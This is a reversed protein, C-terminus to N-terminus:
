VKLAAHVPAYHDPGVPVFRELSAAQLEARMAPDDNAALLAARLRHKVDSGLHAAAVLPQVPWPGLRQIVRLDAVAGEHRSRSIRVVSDVVAADLQGAVVLDLSRHHGGTFTLDAFRDPDAGFNRVAIRLAHHGSLSVPDNCGVRKAALDAFTQIPSDALVVIDGFYNPGGGAEPDDPAWAVGVLEISPGPARTALDVFSTSCIWGLDARGDRFPDEGAAPGSREQDLHLDADLVEAIREFLSVPHGPTMYSLLRLRQRRRGITM